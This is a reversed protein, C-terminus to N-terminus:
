MVRYSLQHPETEEPVVEVYEIGGRTQNKVVEFYEQPLIVTVMERGRVCTAQARAIQRRNGFLDVRLDLHTMTSAKRFLEDLGEANERAILVKAVNAIETWKSLSIERANVGLYEAGTIIRQISRYLSRWSDTQNRRRNEGELWERVENWTM